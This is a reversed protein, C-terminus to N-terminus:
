SRARRRFTAFAAVAGLGGVAGGAATLPRPSRGRLVIVATGAAGLPGMALVGSLLGPNYRRQVLAQGGHLLANGAHNALVGAAIAPFRRVTAAALLTVGWGALVNIRLAIQPTVPYEARGSKWVTLNFWPLFGGPLVWEETQHWLLVPLSGWILAQCPDKLHERLDWTAVTVPAAAAAALWPWAGYTESGRALAGAVIGASIAGAAAHKPVSM